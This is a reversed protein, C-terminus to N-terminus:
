YTKTPFNFCGVLHHKFDFNNHFLSPSLSLYFFTRQEISRYLKLFLVCKYTDLGIRNASSILNQRWREIIIINKERYAERDNLCSNQKSM